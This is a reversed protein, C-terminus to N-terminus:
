NQKQQESKIAHHMHKSSDFMVDNKICYYAHKVLKVMMMVYVKKPPKTKLQEDFWARWLKSRTCAARAPTYLSKRINRDGMKSLKAQGKYKGSQRIVPSLGLWSILHKATPFKDIDLLVALLIQSTTEGIGIISKLIQQKRKLDDNNNIIQTMRQRCMILQNELIKIMDEIMTKNYEDAVYLRNKEMTLMQTIQEARRYLSKLETQSQHAPQWFPPNENQCFDAILKADQKDTKVRKLKYQAYHKIISPNLVSISINTQYFFQAIALYYVNTAECCAHIQHNLIQLQELWNLLDVFGTKDNAIIKHHYKGDIKIACDIKNKSIDLGLYYSISKKQSNM